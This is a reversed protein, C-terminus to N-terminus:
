KEVDSMLSRARRAGPHRNQTREFARAHTHHEAVYGPNGLGRMTHMYCTCSMIRVKYLSNIHVTFPGYELTIILM